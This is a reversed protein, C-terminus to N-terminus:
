PLIYDELKGIESFLTDNLGILKYNICTDSVEIIVINDEIGGGMGSAILTINDEKYYMYASTTYYCGVDGAFIVVNNPLSDLFPNIETWYNTSGPYHPRYNIEVNRFQNDPSWWILEHCFIFINQVSLYNNDITQVLFEKQKGEINWQTPSLIIFLDNDFKFSYYYDKFIREFESGRDHNGSAIHIPILLRNIDILASDWYDETPKPVVDGTLIGLSMKPYSNIKPISNVFPPHLGYQYSMPNGYTHGAVFFSYNYNSLEIIPEHIESKECSIIGLIIIFYIFLTLKLKHM